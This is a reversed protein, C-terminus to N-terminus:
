LIARVSAHRLGHTTRLHRVKVRVEPRLWAASPRRLGAVPCTATALPISRASLGSSLNAGFTMFAMGAYALGGQVDRAVHAFCRGESDRELGLLVFESETVNKTKLWAKSPGNRYPSMARKSVIGELGHKV